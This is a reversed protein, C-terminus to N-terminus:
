DVISVVHYKKKGRRVVFVNDQIAIDKNVQFELDKIQEGNITIAGGNIMERADRKSSCIKGQVLVDVLNGSNVECHPVDKLIRLLMKPDIDAIKGSFLQKSIMKAQEFAEAGHLDTIIERALAEQAVRREPAESHEAEITEIEEKTLFTLMKLYQIVMSDEANILFQYLEYPTTKEADLWIANGESKGFKRGQSDVILPMTLAYVEDGTTKKILEIGTTINGWQDSGAVQLDVGRNEHLYKFDLGQLLMYSFEAYSIGSNEMQRRVLDKGLMYGVNIYKGYDRLFDIISIDKTWDFNNVVEYPFIKQLQTKLKEFNSFVEDKDALNRETTGRPDGILATAGGVLMLPTHGANALRRTILFSSYHGLHLSDATPDTGIYFTMGGKNLKEILDPSTIDQILGRWQLEEYLTM